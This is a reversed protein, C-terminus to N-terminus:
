YPPMFDLCLQAVENWKWNEKVFESDFIITIIIITISTAVIWHLFIYLLIEVEIELEIGM